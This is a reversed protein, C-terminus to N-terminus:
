RLVPSSVVQLDRTVMLSHKSFAPIAYVRGVTRGGSLRIRCFSTTRRKKNTGAHIIIKGDGKKGGPIPLTLFDLFTLLTQLAHPQTLVVHQAARQQAHPLAHGVHHGLEGAGADQLDDAQFGFVVVLLDTLVSVCM